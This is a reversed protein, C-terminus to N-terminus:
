KTNKREEVRRAVNTCNDSHNSEIDLEIINM